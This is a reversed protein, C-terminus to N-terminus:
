LEPATSAQEGVTFDIHKKEKKGETKRERGKEGM